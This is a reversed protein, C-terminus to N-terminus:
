DPLTKRLLTLYNGNLVKTTEDESFGGEKKLAEGIKYLDSVTDLESPISEYGFGGDFDSGIGSHNKSGSVDCVHVINKVVQSLTVADKASSGKQWNGDLFGNYLVTGIVGDKSTLKRIMEDSLHRDTNCYRRTNSHSAIVFGGFEDLAEFFSEEALHTCDLIFGNREMEKLLIHGDKTVPGPEKTGGSYRTKGWAPGIIRLGDEFWKKSEEPTRVPDAGEMLLVVGIKSDQSNVIDELQSKTKIISIIGERELRRYYDLQTLAQAHAEEANSYCPKSDFPSGCPNVWITGFVIKINGRILDPFSTTAGGRESDKRELNRRELASKLLDRRHSQANYALDEHSDIIMPHSSKM